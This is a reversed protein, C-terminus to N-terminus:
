EVVDTAAEFQGTIEAGLVFAPEGLSECQAGNMWYASSVQQGLAFAAYGQTEQMVAVTPAPAGSAPWVIVAPQTCAADAFVSELNFADDPLCRLAGDDTKVVHCTKGLATDYLAAGSTGDSELEASPAVPGTADMGDLQLQVRGAGAHSTTAAAFTSAPVADGLAVFDFGRQFPTVTSCGGDGDLTWVGDVSVPAGANIVSTQAGGDISVVDFIATLPCLEGVGSYGAGIRTTCVPDDFFPVLGDAVYGHHAPLWAPASTVLTSPYSPEHREQDYGSVVQRAGDDTVFTFSAIRDGRDEVVERARVFADLPVTAAAPYFPVNTLTGGSCASPAGEYLTGSSVLAGLSYVVPPEACAHPPLVVVYASTLGGPLSRM